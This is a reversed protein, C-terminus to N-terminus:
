ELYGYVLHVGVIIFTPIFIRKLASSIQKNDEISLISYPGDSNKFFRKRTKSDHSNREREIKLFGSDNDITPILLM